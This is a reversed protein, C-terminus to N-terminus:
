LTFTVMISDHVHLLSCCILWSGISRGQVVAAKCPQNSELQWWLGALAACISCRIIQFFRFLPNGSTAPSETIPRSVHLHIQEVQQREAQQPDEVQPTGSHGVAELVAALEEVHLCRRCPDPPWVQLPDALRIAILLAIGREVVATATEREVGGINELLRVPLPSHVRRPHKFRLYLSCSLYKHLPWFFIVNKVFCNLM